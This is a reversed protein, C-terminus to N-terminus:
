AGYGGNKGPPWGTEGSGFSGCEHITDSPAAHRGTGPGAAPVAQRRQGVARKAPEDAGDVSRGAFAYQLRGLEADLRDYDPALVTQAAYFDIGYDISQDHTEKFTGTEEDYDGILCLTGNGNHYEFGEPLMDQPSVLLVWKGDLEFFDPCEWMKGFRDHNSVLVSKFKWHFGDGSAYLLIQGSGDAPRSGVVCRYTGDTHRWIRPDRFDFRSSGEPLDTDDLM